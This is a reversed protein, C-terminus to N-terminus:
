FTLIWGTIRKVVLQKVSLLKEFDTIDM